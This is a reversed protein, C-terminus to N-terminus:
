NACLVKNFAEIVHEIAHNDIGHHVVLRIRNTGISSLKIRHSALARVLSPADLAAHPAFQLYVMNTPPEETELTIDPLERLGKALMKAHAHDEALRDVMTEVAVIHHPCDTESAYKPYEQCRSNCQTTRTPQVTDYIM